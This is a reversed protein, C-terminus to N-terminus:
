RLKAWVNKIGRGEGTVLRAHIMNSFAWMVRSPTEVSKCGLAEPSVEVAIGGQNAVEVDLAHQPAKSAGAAAAATGAPGGGGAPAGVGSGHGAQQTAAAHPAPPARKQPQRGSALLADVRLLACEKGAGDRSLQVWAATGPEQLVARLRSGIQAYAALMAEAHPRAQLVGPLAAQAASIKVPRQEYLTGGRHTLGLRLLLGLAFRQLNAASSDGAPSAPVANIRVNCAGVARRWIWGGGLRAVLLRGAM